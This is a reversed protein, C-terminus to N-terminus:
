PLPSQMLINTCYLIVAPAYIHARAASRRSVRSSSLWAQQLPDMTMSGPIIHNSNDITCFSLEHGGRSQDTDRVESHDELITKCYPHNKFDQLNYSNGTVGLAPGTISDPCVLASCSSPFLFTSCAELNTSAATVNHDFSASYAVAPEHLNWIGRSSAGRRQQMEVEPYDMTLPSQLLETVTKMRHTTFMKIFVDSHLFVIFQENRGVEVSECVYM